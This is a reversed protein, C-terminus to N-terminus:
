IRATQSNGLKIYLDEWPAITEHWSIFKSTAKKNAKCKLKYTELNEVIHSFLNENDDQPSYKFYFCPNKQEQLLKYPLWAGNIVVGGAYLTEIMSSSLQDTILLNIMIDTLLRLKAAKKSDLIETLIVYNFGSEALVKEVKDKWQSNSYAMPFVFLCKTKISPNYCIAKQIMSIILMHQHGPSGNYGCTVYIKHPPLNFDRALSEKHSTRYQDIFQTVDSGFRCIESKEQYKKYFNVFDDRMGESIFTIAACDNLLPIYQLKKQPTARYFDSGYPSVIVSKGVLKLLRWLQKSVPPLSQIHVIDYAGKLSKLCRYLYFYRKIKNLFKFLVNTYEIFPLWYIFDASSKKYFSGPHGLCLIDLTFLEKNLNKILQELFIDYPQGIFLIKLKSKMGVRKGKLDM